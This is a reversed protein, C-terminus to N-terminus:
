PLKRGSPAWGLRYQAFFSGVLPSTCTAPRSQLMSVSDDVFEGLNGPVSYAAGEGVLLAPRVEVEVLAGVLSRNM